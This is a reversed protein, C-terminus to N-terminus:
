KKGDLNGFDGDYKGILHGLFYGIPLDRNVSHLYEEEQETNKRRVSTQIELNGGRKQFLPLLLLM